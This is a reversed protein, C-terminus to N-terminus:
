QLHLAAEDLFGCLTQVRCAAFYNNIVEHELVVELELLIDDQAPLASLLGVAPDEQIQESILAPSSQLLHLLRFGHGVDELDDVRGILDALGKDEGIALLLLDLIQEEEGQM